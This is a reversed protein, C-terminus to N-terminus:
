DARLVWAVEVAACKVKLGGAVDKGAIQTVDYRGDYHRHVEAGPVSFPPGDMCTQDYEFCILFQPARNTIATLHAAYAGRMDETLAVLVTRDCVAGSADDNSTRLDARV